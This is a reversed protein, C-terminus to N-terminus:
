SENKETVLIPKGKVDVVRSPEYKEDSVQAFYPCKCFQCIYGVHPYGNILVVETPVGTMPKHGKKPCDFALGPRKSM